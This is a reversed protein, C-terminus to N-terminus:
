VITSITINFETSAPLGTIKNVTIVDNKQTYFIQVASTPYSAPNRPNVTNIVQLGKISSDTNIKFQLTTIPYGNSDVKASFTKITTFINNSYTLNGNLANVVEEGNTNLTIALQEILGQFEEPYDEVRIRKWASIKNSPNTM